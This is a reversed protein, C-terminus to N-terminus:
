RVFFDTIYSEIFAAILILTVSVGSLIFLQIFYYKFKIKKGKLLDIILKMPSLGITASTVIGPIEFIGHPIVRLLIEHWTLFHTSSMVANGFIIGNFGLSLISFLGFTFLGSMLNIAAWLNNKLLLLFKVNLMDEDIKPQTSTFLGIIFSIIFIIISTLILYQFDKFTIKILRM